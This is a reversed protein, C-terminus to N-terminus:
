PAAKIMIRHWEIQDDVQLQLWYIGTSLAHPWNLRFQSNGMPHITPQLLLRGNSQFLASQTFQTSPPLQLYLSHTTPNPFLHTAIPTSPTAVNTALQGNPDRLLLVDKGARNCIYLDKFGDGNLDGSVIDLADLSDQVFELQGMVELTGDRFNGEGDNLYFKIPRNLVAAIVLDLDDDDDIDQFVASMAQDPIAPLQDATVDTFFGNGDNLWLRNQPDKDLAFKVTALFIDLDGDGDVDGFIAGRTDIPLNQPLRIASEEIFKGTGDNIMLLNQSQGALFIDLYGDTNLDILEVDHTSDALIPLRDPSQNILEGNGSNMLIMNQGLNGLFLDPYGDNNVDGYGVANCATFPLFQAHQYSNNGTNFYYEHEFDDESVFVVDLRDDNNFDAVAIDESDHVAIPFANSQTFFARGNNILLTNVQFENALILDLDGDPEVDVSYVSVSQYSTISDTLVDSKNIFLQAQLHSYCCSCICLCTVIGKKWNM